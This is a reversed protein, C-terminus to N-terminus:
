RGVSRWQLVSRESLHDAAAVRREEVPTAGLHFGDDAVEAVGVLSVQAYVATFDVGPLVPELNV